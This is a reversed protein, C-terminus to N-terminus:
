VNTLKRVHLYLTYAFTFFRKPRNNLLRTCFRAVRKEVRACNKSDDYSPLEGIFPTVKLAIYSLDRKARGLLDHFPMAKM